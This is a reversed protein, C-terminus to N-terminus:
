HSILSRGRMWLSTFIGGLGVGKLVQGRGKTRLKTPVSALVYPEDRKADQKVM